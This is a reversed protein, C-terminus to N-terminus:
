GRLLDYEIELGKIIQRKNPTLAVEYMRSRFVGGRYLRAIAQSLDVTRGAPFSDRDLGGTELTDLNKWAITATSPDISDDVSPYHLVRLCTQRKRQNTDPEAGTTM